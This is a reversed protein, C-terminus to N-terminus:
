LWYSYSGVLVTVGLWTIFIKRRVIKVEKIPGYCLLSKEYCQQNILKWNCYSLSVRNDEYEKEFYRDVKIQLVVCHYICSNWAPIWKLFSTCIKM